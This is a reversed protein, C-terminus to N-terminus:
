EQVKSFGLLRTAKGKFGTGWPCAKTPPTSSFNVESWSALAVLSTFFTRFGRRKLVAGYLDCSM